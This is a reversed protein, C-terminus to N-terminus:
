IILLCPTHIILVSSEDKIVRKASLETTKGSVGDYNAPRDLPSQTLFCFVIICNMSSEICDVKLSYILTDSHLSLINM